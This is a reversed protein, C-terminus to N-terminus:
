LLIEYILFLFHNSNIGNTIENSKEDNNIKYNFQQKYILHILTEFNYEEDKDFIYNENKTNIGLQECVRILQEYEIVNTINIKRKRRWNWISFWLM